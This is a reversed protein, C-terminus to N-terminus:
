KTHIRFHSPVSFTVKVHSAHEQIMCLSYKLLFFYVIIESFKGDFINQLTFVDDFLVETKIPIFVRPIFQQFYAVNQLLLIFTNM